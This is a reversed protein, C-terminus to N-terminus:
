RDASSSSQARGLLAFPALLVRRLAPRTAVRMLGRRQASSLAGGDSTEALAGVDSRLRELVAETEDIIRRGRENARQLEEARLRDHESSAALGIIYAERELDEAIRPAGARHPSAVAAAYVERLRPVAAAWSVRTAAERLERVHRERAEGPELLAAAADASADADWPVLAALNDGALEGLAGNAAYLCPVGAEAAEFPVYGFGEYVSPYVVADARAYLWARGADDITGLEIVLSCLSPDAALLAQEKERSSGHPVHPGALVLRGDWGHRERLARALAIAFPRNKHAYDTGICVLLRTDPPVAAPRLPEAAAR